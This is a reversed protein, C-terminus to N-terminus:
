FVCSQHFRGGKSKKWLVISSYIHSGSRIELVFFAIHNLCVLYKRHPNRCDTPSVMPRITTKSSSTMVTNPGYLVHMSCVHKTYVHVYRKIYDSYTYIFIHISWLSDDDLWRGVPDVWQRQLGWPKKLGSALHRHPGRYCVWFYLSSM